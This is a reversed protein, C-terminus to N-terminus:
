VRGEDGQATITPVEPEEDDDSLEEALLAEELGNPRPKLGTKIEWLKMTEEAWENQDMDHLHSWSAEYGPEYLVEDDVGARYLSRYVSLEVGMQHLSAVLQPFLERMHRPLERLGAMDCSDMSISLLIISLSTMTLLRLVFDTVAATSHSLMYRSCLSSIDEHKCDNIRLSSLSAPLYGQPDLLHIPDADHGSSFPTMLTYDLALETLNLLGSLSGFPHVSDSPRHCDFQTWELTRLNTTYSVLAESLTAFNYDDWCAQRVCLEELGPCGFDDIVSELLRPNVSVDMLVLRRLSSSTDPYYPSYLGQVKTQYPGAACVHELSPLMFIGTRGAVNLNKLKHFPCSSDVDKKPERWNRQLADELMVPM